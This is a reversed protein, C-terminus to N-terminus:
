GARNRAVAGSIMNISVYRPNKYTQLYAIRPLLGFDTYHANLDFARIILDIIITLALGIRFLALSRLDVGFLENIKLQLSHSNM